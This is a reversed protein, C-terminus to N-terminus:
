LSCGSGSAGSGGWCDTWTTGRRFVEVAAATAAANSAGSRRGSRGRGRLGGARVGARGPQLGHAPLGTFEQLRRERGTRRHRDDPEPPLDPEGSVVDDAVVVARRYAHGVGRRDIEAKLRYALPRDREEATPSSGTVLVVTEETDVLKMGAGARQERRLAAGGPPPATRQNREFEREREKRLRMDRIMEKFEELNEARQAAYQLDARLDMLHNYAQNQDINGAPIPLLGAGRRSDQARRHLHEELRPRVEQRRDGDDLEAPRGARPRITPSRTSIAGARDRHGRQGGARRAAEPEAAPWSRRRSRCRGCGSGATPWGLASGASRAPRRPRRRAAGPIPLPPVPCPFRSSWTPRRCPAAPRVCSAAAWAPVADRGAQGARLRGPHYRM